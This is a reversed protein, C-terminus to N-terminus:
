GAGSTLSAPRLSWRDLIEYAAGSSSLRSRVLRFEDLPWDFLTFNVADLPKKASRCLTVHPVFLRRELVVGLERCGEALADALTTLAPEPELMGAYVIKKAQWHGLRDLCLRVEESQGRRWKEAVTSALGRLSPLLAPAVDGLFALTLHLTEVRMVRGGGQACCRGALAHLSAALEPSPWLAFFLRWREDGAAASETITTTSTRM